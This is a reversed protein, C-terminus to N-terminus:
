KPTGDSPGYLMTDDRARQRRLNSLGVPARRGNAGNANGGGAPAGSAAQSRGVAEALAANSESLAWIAEILQDLRALLAPDVGGSPPTDDDAAGEEAVEHWPADDRAARAASRPDQGSAGPPAVGAEAAWGEAIAGYWDDYGDREDTM